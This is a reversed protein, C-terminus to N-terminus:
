ALRGESIISFFHPSIFFFFFFFFLDIFFRLSFVGCVVSLCSRTQWLQIDSSHAFPPHVFGKIYGYGHGRGCGRRRPTHMPSHVSSFHVPSLSFLWGALVIWAQHRSCCCCFLIYYPSLGKPFGKEWLGSQLSFGWSLFLVWSLPM